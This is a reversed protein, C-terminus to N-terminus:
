NILPRYYDDLTTQGSANSVRNDGIPLTPPYTFQGRLPSSESQWPSQMASQTPSQYPSSQSSQLGAIQKVESLRSQFDNLDDDTLTIGKDATNRSAFLILGIFLLGLIVLIIVTKNKKIMDMLNGSDSTSYVGGDQYEGSAYMDYDSTKGSKSAKTIAVIGGIIISLAILVIIGITFYGWGTAWFGISVAKSKSVIDSIIDQTNKIQCAQKESVNQLIVTNCAQINADKCNVINTASAGKCKNDVIQNIKSKQVDVNTSIALGLGTQATADLQSAWQAANDTLNDILCTSSVSANQDINFTCDKGCASPCGISCNDLNVINSGGTGGCTNYAKQYVQQSIDNVNTSVSAGM